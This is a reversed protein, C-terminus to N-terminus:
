RGMESSALVASEELTLTARDADVTVRAGLPLTMLQAGHGVPLGYLVPVGLSGLLEGLVDELSMLRPWSEPALRWDSRAMEGVLVGAVGDLVGANRMHTLDECVLYPAKAYDEFFLIAGTLNPQWPTGISQIIPRLCGGVLPGTASGSGWTRLPRGQSPVEGPPETSTLLRLLWERSPKKFARGMTVFLPGYFTVLEARAALYLLLTTVDSFGIVPKPNTRLLDIDLHSLIEATGYGGEYCQVVHVEDDKFMSMLDMARAFPYRDGYGRTGSRVLPSLRVRYGQEEWWAIGLRVDEPREYNLAPAPVGVTGGPPLAPPKLAM